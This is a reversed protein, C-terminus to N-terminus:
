TKLRATLLVCKLILDQKMAVEATAIRESPLRTSPVHDHSVRAVSKFTNAVGPFRITFFSVVTVLLGSSRNPSAKVSLRENQGYFLTNTPTAFRSRPTADVGHQSFRPRDAPKHPSHDNQFRLRKNAATCDGSIKEVVQYIDNLIIRRPM